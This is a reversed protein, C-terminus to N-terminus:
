FSRILVRFRARLDGLIVLKAGRKETAPHAPSNKSKTRPKPLGVLPIIIIHPWKTIKNTYLSTVKLGCIMNLLVKSCYCMPSILNMNLHQGMHLVSIRTIYIYILFLGGLLFESPSKTIENFSLLLRTFSRLNWRWM